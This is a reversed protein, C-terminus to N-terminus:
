NGPPKMPAPASARRNYENIFDRTIDSSEAMYLIVDQAGSRDIVTSIGRQEAYSVIANLVDDEIPGVVQQARKQFALEADEAKNRLERRMAEAQFRKEQLVRSDVVPAAKAIEDAMAETRSRMDQLERRLPEFERDLGEIARILSTIGKEPDYFAEMEIVAIRFPVSGAPPSTTSPAAKGVSQQAQAPNALCVALALSSFITSYTKM